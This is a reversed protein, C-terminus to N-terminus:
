DDTRGFGLENNKTFANKYKEIEKVMEKITQELTQEYIASRIVVERIHAPSFEKTSSHVILQKAEESPDKKYFFKLLEARQEAPPYPVDIKDDFRNPRNTLNGLFVEPFNTTAIILIPKTFTKEQNDLLSLLSSDSKMRVQDIEVGGIDEVMLIMKEIDPDYEFSQIFDKVKWAEYKDTPWIVILTKKDASYKESVMSIITSKGSGAPGYLLVGRKPVEFGHERYVDFKRFFCDIKDSINKTSVFSELIKDKIFSTPELKLGEMNSKIVFIGPKVKYKDQPGETEKYELQVFFGDSTLTAYDSEPLTDEPTLESLKIKHKLKFVGAM